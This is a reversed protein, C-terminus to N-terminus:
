PFLTDQEDVTTTATTTLGRGRLINKLFLPPKTPFDTYKGRLNVRIGKLAAQEIAKMIGPMKVLFLPCVFLKQIPQTHNCDPNTNRTCEPYVM